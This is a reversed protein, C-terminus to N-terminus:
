QKVEEKDKLSEVYLSDFVANTDSNLETAWKRSIGCKKPNSNRYTWVRNLKFGEFREGLRVPNSVSGIDRNLGLRLEEARKHECRAISSQITYSLADVEIKLRVLDCPDGLDIAQQLDAIKEALELVVKFTSM